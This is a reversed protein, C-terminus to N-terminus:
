AQKAKLAAEILVSVLRELGQLTPTTRRLAAVLGFADVIDPDDYERVHEKIDFPVYAIAREQDALEAQMEELSKCNFLNAYVRGDSEIIFWDMHDEDEMAPQEQRQRPESAAPMVDHALLIKHGGAMTSGLVFTVNEGQKPQYDGHCTAVRCKKRNEPHGPEAIRIKAVQSGYVMDQAMVFGHIREIAM